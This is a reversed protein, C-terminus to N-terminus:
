FFRVSRLVRKLEEMYAPRSIFGISFWHEPYAIAREEYVNNPMPKWGTYLTYSATAIPEVPITVGWIRMYQSNKPLKILAREEDIVWSVSTWNKLKNPVNFGTYVSGSFNGPSFVQFYISDLYAESANLPFYCKEIPNKAIVVEGNGCDSVIWDKPHAFSYHHQLNTYVKWTRPVRIFSWWYITVIVM